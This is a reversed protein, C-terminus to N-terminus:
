KGRPIRISEHSINILFKLIGSLYINLAMRIFYRKLNLFGHYFLNYSDEQHNMTIIRELLELSFIGEQKVIEVSLIDQRLFELSLSSFDSNILSLNFM